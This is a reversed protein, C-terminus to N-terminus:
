LIAASRVVARCIIRDTKQRSMTQILPAYRIHGRRSTLLGAVLVVPVVFIVQEIDFLVARRANLLITWWASAPRGLM